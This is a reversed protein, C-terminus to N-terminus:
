IVGERRLQSRRRKVTAATFLRVCLSAKEGSSGSLHQLEREEATFPTEECRCSHAPAAPREGLRASGRM